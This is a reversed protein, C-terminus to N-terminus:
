APRAASSVAVCAGSTGESSCGRHGAWCHARTTTLQVARAELRVMCFRLVGPQRYRRWGCRSPRFLGPQGFPSPALPMLQLDLVQRRSACKASWSIRAEHILNRVSRCESLIQRVEAHAEIRVSLAVSTAMAAAAGFRTSANPHRYGYRKSLIYFASMAGACKPVLM